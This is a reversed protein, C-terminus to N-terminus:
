SWDNSLKAMSVCGTGLYAHTCLCSRCKCKVVKVLEVSPQATIDAKSSMSLRKAAEHLYWSTMETHLM